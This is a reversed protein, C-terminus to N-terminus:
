ARKINSYLEYDKFVISSTKRNNEIFKGKGTYFDQHGDKRKPVAFIRVNKLGGFKKQFNKRVKKM